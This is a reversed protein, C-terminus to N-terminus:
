DVWPRPARGFCEAVWDEKAERKVAPANPNKVKIWHPSRGSRYPSGLRKSVIGECGLKCAEHLVIAGDETFYENVVIALHSGRLLKGLLRKREIPERRSDRGDLEITMFTATFILIASKGAAPSVL